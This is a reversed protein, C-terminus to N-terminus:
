RADDTLRRCNRTRTQQQWLQHLVQALVSRPQALFPGAPDGLGFQQGRHRGLLDEGLCRRHVVAVDLHELGAADLRQLVVRAVQGFADNRTAHLGILDDADDQQQAVHQGPREELLILRVEVQQVPHEVGVLGRGVPDGVGDGDAEHLFALADDALLL